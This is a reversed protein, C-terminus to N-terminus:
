EQRRGGRAHCRLCNAIQGPRHARSASRIRQVTDTDLLTQRGDQIVHCNNCASTRTARFIFEGHPNAPGLTITALAGHHETHCHLCGMGNAITRAHSDATTPAASERLRETSHCVICRAAAPGHFPEHCADCSQLDSHHRSLDGPAWLTEPMWTSAWAICAVVGLIVTATLFSPVCNM